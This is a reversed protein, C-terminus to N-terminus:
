VQFEIPIRPRAEEPLKALAAALKRCSLCRGCMHEGGLHCSWVISLPARLDVGLRIIEVKSLDLTFSAVTVGDRTSLALADSARSVYEASNDPFEGAEERNFGTVVYECHYSEAFAAGINIFVGNRNPVWVADLSDAM